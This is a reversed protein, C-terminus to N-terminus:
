RTAFRGSPGGHRSSSTVSTNRTREPASLGLMHMPTGTMDINSASSETGPGSPQVGRAEQLLCSACVRARIGPRVAVQAMRGTLTRGCRRCAAMVRATHRAAAGAATM